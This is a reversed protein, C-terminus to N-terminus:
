PSHQETIVSGEPLHKLLFGRLVKRVEERRSTFGIERLLQLMLDEFASLFSPAERLDILIAERWQGPLVPEHGQRGAHLSFASPGTM